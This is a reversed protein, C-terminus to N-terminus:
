PPDTVIVDAAHRAIVEPVQHPLWASQNAGIRVRSKARLDALGAINHMDIPQEVFEVGVDEFRQLADVAEFMSWAENADVRVAVDDPVEDRIARALRLDNELEFGIKIYVSKHGRAAGEAAQARATETTRDDVGVFWYFPVHATDLGGFFQYVPCGHAKGCIDWLAMEIAATAGNGLYPYHHWGRDAARRLFQTVRLPDEGVVWPITADLADCVLKILPSGPVEGIGSIGEDTHVEVIANTLGWMRGFRWTEPHTFPVSVVHVDVGTVKM